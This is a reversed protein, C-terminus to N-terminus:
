YDFSFGSVFHVAMIVITAFVILIVKTDVSADGNDSTEVTENHESTPETTSDTM